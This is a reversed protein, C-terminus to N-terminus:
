RRISNWGTPYNVMSQGTFGSGTSVWMQMSAGNTWVIDARGDGSYDAVQLPRWASSALFGIGEVRTAGSMRWYAIQGSPPHRWLLDAKGDGDVDGVGSLDWGTPYNLMAFGSYVQGPGGAWLQMASGNTWIIDLRGDGTLDGTGVIRWASPVAYAASGVIAAGSMIWTSLVTNADDRWLLDSKGDNDIDGVGVIRWGAPYSRMAAGTFGSGNGQWMQMSTGDTWVLDLRGDGQFDGTAVIRWPAGVAYGVGGTKTAGNMTWYAWDTNGETRWILDSRGAGNFDFKRQDILDPENVTVPDIVVTARFQAVVPMTINLSRTNDSVNQVGTPRGSYSIVPNAFHRISFQSSDEIRYAMVTYFGTTSAERYGHSYAHAGSQTSDETNHAQGMNHGLEHALTEERCFYTKSDGEDFDTGDAVISYGFPASGASITSQGSGNLWAVGCGDSEPTRFARVLAVLDAGYTDRAARLANFAPDPTTPGSGSKYGTLAELAAGSNTNDPYSVQLTKVLRIRMTVGSNAYAQNTTDVLNVMRTNAQSAGGLQAALGDSYGLLVDIVAQSASASAPAYSPAALPSSESLSALKPPILADTERTRSLGEAGGLKSRDTAVLYSHGGFMRVLLSNDAGQPISGFVAKEGFTLVGDIGQRNRGIWSWNGDPHEVHRIYRLRIPEGEPTDIVIEGGRRTANLAHQESLAVPYATYAGSHKVRRVGDYALLEGRDPLDAFATTVAPPRAVQLGGGRSAQVPTTAHSDLGPSPPEASCGILALLSAAALYIRMDSKGTNVRNECLQRLIRRFRGSPQLPM